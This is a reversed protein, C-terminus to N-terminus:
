LGEHLWASMGPGDLERVADTVKHRFARLAKEGRDTLEVQKSRGADTGVVYGETTLRDLVASDLVRYASKRDNSDLDDFGAHDDTPDIGDANEVIRAGVAVTRGLALELGILRDVIRRKKPTKLEDNEVSVILLAAVQSRTLSDVPYLTIPRGTSRDSSSGPTDAVAPPAVPTEDDGGMAAEEGVHYPTAQTSVDMCGLAAGIAALRTGASVNVFVEDDEHETALTTVLGFVAYVDFQDIPHTTVAIGGDRLEAVLTSSRPGTKAGDHPLLHVHDADNALLPEVVRTDDDHLPVIHVRKPHM